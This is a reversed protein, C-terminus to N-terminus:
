GELFFMALLDLVKSVRLAQEAAIKTKMFRDPDITLPRHIRQVQNSPMTKSRKHNSKMTEMQKVDGDTNEVSPAEIAKALNTILSKNPSSPESISRSKAQIESDDKSGLIGESRCFSFLQKEPQRPISLFDSSANCAPQRESSRLPGTELSGEM